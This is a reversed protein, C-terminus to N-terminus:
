SGQSAEIENPDICHEVHILFQKSLDLKREEQLKRRNRDYVVNLLPRMPTNPNTEIVEGIEGTSIRVWSGVPFISICKLMTRVYHPDFSGGENDLIQQIAKDPLFRPRWLRTHTKAEYKDMLSILRALYHIEEKTLGKPYGTGDVKEHYQSIVLPITEDIGHINRFIEAGYIVHKKVEEYEANSLRSDKNWIKEPIKMLGIDHFLSAVVLDQLKDQSFNLELAMRVSLLCVNVSHTYVYNNKYEDHRFVLRILDNPSIFGRFQDCFEQTWGLIEEGKIKGEEGEAVKNFVTTVFNLMIDYAAEAKALDSSPKDLGEEGGHKSLSLEEEKKEKKSPGLSEFGEFGKHLDVM